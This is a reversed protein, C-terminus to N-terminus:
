LVLGYSIKPLIQLKWIDDTFICITRLNWETLKLLFHNVPNNYINANEKAEIKICNWLNCNMSCNWLMGHEMRRLQFSIIPFPYNNIWFYRTSSDVCSVSGTTVVGPQATTASGITTSAPCRQCTRNQM